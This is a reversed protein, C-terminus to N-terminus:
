SKLFYMTTPTKQCEGSVYVLKKARILLQRWIWTCNRIENKLGQVNELLKDSNEFKWTM